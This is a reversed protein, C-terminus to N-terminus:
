SRCLCGPITPTSATGRRSGRSLCSRSGCLSPTCRSCRLTSSTRRRLASAATRPRRQRSRRRRRTGRRSCGSGTRIRPSGLIHIPASRKPLSFHVLYGRGHCLRAARRPRAARAIPKAAHKRCLSQSIRIEDARGRRLIRGLPPRRRGAERANLARVQWWSLARRAASVESAALTGRAEGSIAEDAVRAVELRTARGGARRMAEKGSIYDRQMAGSRPFSPCPM